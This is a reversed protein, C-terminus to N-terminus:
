AWCTTGAAISQARSIRARIAMSGAYRQGVETARGGAPVTRRQALVPQGEGPVVM